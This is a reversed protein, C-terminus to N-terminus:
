SFSSFVVPLHNVFGILYIAFSLVVMTVQRFMKLAYNYLIQNQLLTIMVQAGCVNFTAAQPWCGIIAHLYSQKQAYTLLIAAM